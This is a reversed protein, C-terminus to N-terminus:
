PHRTVPVSYDTRTLPDVSGLGLLIVLWLLAAVAFAQALGSVSYMRMFATGIVILMAAMLLVLAPAALWGPLLPVAWLQAALLGLVALWSGGLRRLHPGPATM